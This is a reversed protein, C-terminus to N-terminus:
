PHLRQWPAHPPAQELGAPMPLPAAYASPAEAVPATFLLAVMAIFGLAVVNTSWGTGAARKKQSILLTFYEPSKV